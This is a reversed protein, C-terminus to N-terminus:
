CPQTTRPRSAKMQAQRALDTTNSLIQLAENPNHFSMNNSEFLREGAKLQVARTFALDPGPQEGDSV